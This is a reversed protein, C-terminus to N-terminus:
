LVRSTEYPKAQGAYSRQDDDPGSTLDAGPMAHMAHRCTGAIRPRHQTITKQFRPQRRGEPGRATNRVIDTGPMGYCARLGLAKDNSSLALSAIAPDTASCEKAGPMPDDEPDM